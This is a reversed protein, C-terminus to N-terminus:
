PDGHHRSHNNLKRLVVFKDDEERAALGDLEQVGEEGGDERPGGGILLRLEAEQTEMAIHLLLYSPWWRKEARHHKQSGRPIPAETLTPTNTKELLLARLDELLKGHRIRSDQQTRDTNRKMM